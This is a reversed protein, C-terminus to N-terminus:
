QRSNSRITQVGARTIVFDMSQAPSFGSFVVDIRRVLISTRAPSVLVSGQGSLDLQVEDVRRRKSSREEEEGGVPESGAVAEVWEKMRGTRTLFIRVNIQNAWVLGLSADKKEDLFTDDPRNFWRAQEKYILEHRDFGTNGVLGGGEGDFVATVDNIVVAAIHLRSVLHHLLSAVEGLAKAREVLQRTDAKGAWQFLSGLSDIVLLKLPKGTVACREALSPVEERLYYTLAKTTDVLCAHINDLSCSGSSSCPHERMLEELRQTAITSGSAIYCSSGEIGGLQPSLQVTLCLQLALQTKGSAGEGSIEWVAGTKIGSGLLDDLGKDGTTFSESGLSCTELVTQPPSLIEASISDFIKEVDNKGLRLKRAVEDAAQLLVDTVSKYGSMALRSKEEANLSHLDSIPVDMLVTSTSSNHKKKSSIKVPLPCICTCEPDPPPEDNEPRTSQLVDEAILQGQTIVVSERDWYWPLKEMWADHQVLQQDVADFSPIAFMWLKTRVTNRIDRLEEFLPKPSSQPAYRNNIIDFCTREIHAAQPAVEALIQVAPLFQDKQTTSVLRLADSIPTRHGISPYLISKAQNEIERARSTDQSFGSATSIEATIGPSWSVNTANPPIEHHPSSSLRNSSAGMSADLERLSAFVDAMAPRSKPEETWCRTAINWIHEYSKGTHSHTPELTPRKGSLVATIIAAETWGPVQDFPTRGSLVEAITIGFAYTDSAFSRSEGMMLEPSQWRATGRGKSASATVSHAWKALGFDCLLARTATSVLINRAKIDGHIINKSHLYTVADATELLKIERRDRESPRRDIRLRKLAVRVTSHYMGVFLDSFHGTVDVPNSGEVVIHEVSIVHDQSESSETANVLRNEAGTARSPRFTHRTSMICMSAGHSPSVVPATPRPIAIDFELLSARPAEDGKSTMMSTADM